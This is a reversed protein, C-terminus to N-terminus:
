QWTIHMIMHNKTEIIGFEIYNIMKLNWAIWWDGYHQLLLIIYIETNQYRTEFNQYNYSNQTKGKM